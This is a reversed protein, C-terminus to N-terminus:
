EPAGLSGNIGFTDGKGLVSFDNKHNDVHISSNNDVGIRSM